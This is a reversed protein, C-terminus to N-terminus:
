PAESWRGAHAELKARALTTITPALQAARAPELEQVSIVKLYDDGLPAAVRAAAARSARSQGPPM